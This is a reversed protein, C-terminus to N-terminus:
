IRFGVVEEEEVIVLRNWVEMTEQGTWRSLSQTRIRVRAQRQETRWAAALLGEFVHLDQREGIWVGVCKTIHGPLVGEGLQSCRPSRKVM